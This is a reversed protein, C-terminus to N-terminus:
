ENPACQRAVCQRAQAAPVIHSLRLRRDYLVCQSGAGDQTARALADDMRVALGDDDWVRFQSRGDDGVIIEFGIPYLAIIRRITMDALQLAVSATVVLENTRDNLVAAQLM